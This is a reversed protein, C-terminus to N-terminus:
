EEDGEETPRNLTCGPDFLSPDFSFECGRCSEKEPHLCFSPKMILNMKNAKKPKSMLKLMDDCIADAKDYSDTLAFPIFDLGYNHIIGNANMQLAKSLNVVHFCHQKSSYECLILKGLDIM